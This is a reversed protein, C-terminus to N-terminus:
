FLLTQLFRISWQRHLPRPLFDKRYFGPQPHYVFIRCLVPLLFSIVINEYLMIALLRNSFLSRSRKSKDQYPIRDCDYQNFINDYHLANLTMLQFASLSDPSRLISHSTWPTKDKLLPMIKLFLNVITVLPKYQLQIFLFYIFLFFYQALIVYM